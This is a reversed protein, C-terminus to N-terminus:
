PGTVHIEPTLWRRHVLNGRVDRIYEEAGADYWDGSYHMGICGWLVTDLDGSRTDRAYNGRGAFFTQYLGDMCSRQDALRYDVAFATSDKIMPWTMWAYYVKTQLISWSQWCCQECNFNWLAAFPPDLPQHPHAETQVCKSITSRKDGFTSQRWWSEQWAQARVVDEDVGYKCAGWRLIMDTSGTFDGTIRDFHVPSDLPGFTYGAARLRSLEGGSPVAHNAAVNSPITEASPRARVRAACDAESPLEAHLPLTSFHETSGAYATGGAFLGFLVGIIAEALRM